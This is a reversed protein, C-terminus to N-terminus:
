PREIRGTKIWNQLREQDTAPDVYAAAEARTAPHNQGPHAAQWREGAAAIQRAFERDLPDLKHDYGIWGWSGDPGIKLTNDYTDDARPQEILMPPNGGGPIPGITIIKYRSLIEASIPPHSFAALQGPDTPMMQDNAAAFGKWANALSPGLRKKASLRLEALAQRINEEDNLPFDSAVKLWDQPQLFSLEPINTEPFQGLYRKLLDLKARYKAGPADAPDTSASLKEAQRAEDAERQRTSQANTELRYQSALRTNRQELGVVEARLTRVERSQYYFGVLAAVALAGGLISKTSMFTAVAMGTAAPAVATATAALAAQAVAASLGSPIAQAAETAQTVSLAMATSTIGRKSLASELRALARVVRKRSAEESLSLRHALDNFSLDQFFRLLIAERDKERLDQMAEDLVAALASTDRSGAAEVTIEHMCDAENERHERRRDDRRLKSATFHTTTYLWSLLVPRGLLSRAQRALQTFVIQTVDRAKHEDGVQRRAARYIVNFHRSVLEAFADDCRKEVYRQLLEADTPM